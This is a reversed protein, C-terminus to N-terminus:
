KLYEVFFGMTANRAGKARAVSQVHNAVSQGSDASAASIGLTHTRKCRTGAVSQVHNAQKLRASVPSYTNNIEFRPEPCASCARALGTLMLAQGALM